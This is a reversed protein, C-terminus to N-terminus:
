PRPNLLAALAPNMDISDGVVRGYALQETSALFDPHVPENLPVYNGRAVDIERQALFREYQENLADPDDGTLVAMLALDGKAAELPPAAQLRRMVEALEPTGEGPTTTFRVNQYSASSRAQAYAQDNARQPDAAAGTGNLIHDLWDKPQEETGM